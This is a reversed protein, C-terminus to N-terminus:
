ERGYLFTSVFAIVLGIFISLGIMHVPVFKSLALAGFSVATTVFSLVIAFPELFSYDDTDSYTKEPSGNNKGDFSTKETRLVNEKKRKENEIMYIIYDLGLGFVLIMGTISFFELKIHFLAFIASIWLVILLPVSVIKLCQKWTYFLKLAAFIVIYVILFFLLITCSLRDLDRNIERVKSIIFINENDAIKKYAEYDTVTVPMVVSYFKGDIEGIWASDVFSQLYDPVNKGIEIFDDAGDFYNKRISSSFQEIEDDSYGLYMLQEETFSLLRGCADRSAKQQKISPIFGSTCIYGGRENGQNIKRLAFTVKEENELTEQVTKGSVIFWANPSYKLVQSAEAENQFEKGEMKYLRSLNNEIRFFGKIDTPKESILTIGVSAIAFAFLFVIGIRGIKKKKDNDFHPLRNLFSLKRDSEPLNLM